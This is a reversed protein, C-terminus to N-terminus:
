KLCHDLYNEPIGYDVPINAQPVPSSNGFVFGRLSEMEDKAVPELSDIFLKFLDYKKEDPLSNIIDWYFDRRTTSKGQRNRRDIYTRYDPIEHDVQQAMRIFASGSHYTDGNRDLIPFLRNYAAVWNLNM